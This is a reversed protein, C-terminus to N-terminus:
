KGLYDGLKLVRKARYGGISKYIKLYSKLKKLNLKQKIDGFYAKSFGFFYVLDLFAKEPDAIFFYSEGAKEMTYGFLLKSNIVYYKYQTKYRVQRTSVVEYTQPIQEILGYYYLASNLSIYSPQVINTAIVKDDNVFCLLGDKIKYALGRKILRNFYVGSVNTSKGLLTALDKISFVKQKSNIAKEKIDYLNQRSM